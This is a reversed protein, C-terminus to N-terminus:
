HTFMLPNLAVPKNEAEQALLGRATEINEKRHRSSFIRKGGGAPPHYIITFLFRLAYYGMKVSGPKHNGDTLMSQFYSRLEDIGTQEPDKGIFRCYDNIHWLYSTRTRESLNRLTAEQEFSKKFKDYYNIKFSVYRM